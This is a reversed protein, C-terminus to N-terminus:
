PVQARFFGHHLIIRPPHDELQQLVSKIAGSAMDQKAPISLSLNELHGVISARDGGLAHIPTAGINLRQQTHMRAALRGAFADAIFTDAKTRYKSHATLYLDATASFIAM